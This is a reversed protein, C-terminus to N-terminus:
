PKTITEDLNLIARAVLTWAAREVLQETSENASPSGAIAAVDLEGAKLRAHQRQYFDVVAALEDPSPPRTLCRRMAYDARQEASDAHAVVLRSLAQACEFFVDDNLLTLAQLPTNTVERRPVCAEGSPADFTSFMAYPATRKAFTYLGRRYRDEGESVKWELPGYTGESTVGAPQPPFVSPGGLKTTLLGSMRLVGDRILEADIRRRPARALLVNEPDRELLEPSVHSSQQYAASTVILRHLGKISWGSRVLETALWDLLEPHTPLEGQFGFDETTRVLGRGFITAWHRNVIVRAVLPNRGNVLWRAFELRNTPEDGYGKLFEPIGPEVQEGPQLFEGRHHIFTPRPHDAPREAFVLTTPYEPMSRRLQEIQKREEALEPCVSLFYERLRERDASSREGEPVLLLREIDDPLGYTAAPKDDTTVSVRFRGLGAAYYREFLLELSLEDAMAPEALTFVAIQAHGQGGDISWGSLPDGDIARAATNGGAAYSHTAGSLPLTQEGARLTIESLFFDGIPGEYYVRGPGNAPLREDPLAEIRIATIRGHPNKYRIQYIDRKTQDGSSIISGDDLIELRPLNASAEIPELTHWRIARETETALWEQFRQKLYEQRRVELPRDDVRREGFQIRFRGLTHQGGFQQDITVTWRLSGSSPLPQALTAILHRNVNWPAPGQIAWGTEPKRDLAHAAPYGDQAFDAEASAFAVPQVEAAEAAQVSATLETVVFNGHPTRGPGQSPLNSDALAELRLATIPVAPGEFVLTYTDKDPVDGTVFLSGDDRVELTAGSAATAQVLQGTHWIFDPAPPFHEALRRTREDIQRQIAERQQRIDERVVSAVPEDANNLLAMVQYYERHEIPDYKHTHCQACGLTLGLWATGTTSVRDVMAHFRFELPDIGGEENIMTNRHFGTAIRQELTANPLMDGALQEITFEDFPKDENLAKIVWDRYPWMSRPRDKEYGNTDAYRALDLWRRAWREGYHPSALLSDVLREYADPATDNVFAEAQEPTPPLGILDFYVRRVLTYRDAPESPELGEKELRALLFADIENRVWQANRVAPLAPRVPPQFAWHEAYPAGAAVWARLVEKQEDTLPHKAEPPPMMEFEDTSLIRRVLESEEPKGPVIAAMGSDAEALAADRQDLRLGGQRQEADPGHCKFCHSALIPRVDRAFDVEAAHVSPSHAFSALLALSGLIWIRSMM